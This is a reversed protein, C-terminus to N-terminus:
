EDYCEVPYFGDLGLIDVEEVYWEQSFMKAKKVAHAKRKYLRPPNTDTIEGGQGIYSKCEPDIVMYFRM